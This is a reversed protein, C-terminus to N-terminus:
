ADPFERERLSTVDNSLSAVAAELERVRSVLRSVESKLRAEREDAEQLAKRLCSNARALRANEDTLEDNVKSMLAISSEAAATAHIALGAPSRDKSTTRALDVVYKVGAGLSTLLTGGLLLQLLEPTM